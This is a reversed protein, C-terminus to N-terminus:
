FLDIRQQNKILEEHVAVAKNMNCRQHHQLHTARVLQFKWSRNWLQFVSIDTLPVLTLTWCTDPISTCFYKGRTICSEHSSVSLWWALLHANIDCFYTLLVAGSTLTFNLCIPLCLTQLHISVATMCINVSSLPFVRYPGQQKQIRGLRM